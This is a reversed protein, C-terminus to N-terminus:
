ILLIILLSSLMFLIKSIYNGKCDFKDISAYDRFKEMIEDSWGASTFNGSEIDKITKEHLGDKILSNNVEVCLKNYEAVKNTRYEVYCCKFGSRKKDECVKVSGPDETYCDEVSMNLLCVGILFYITEKM